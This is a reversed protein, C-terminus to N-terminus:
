SENNNSSWISETRENMARCFEGKEVSVIEEGKRSKLSSVLLREPGIVVVPNIKLSRLTSLPFVKFGTSQGRGMSKIGGGRRKRQYTAAALTVTMEKAIVSDPKSWDVSEWRSKDRNNNM